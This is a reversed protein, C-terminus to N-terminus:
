QPESFDTAFAEGFISSFLFRKCNSLVNAAIDIYVPVFACVFFNSFGNCNAVSFCLFIFVVAQSFFRLCCCLAEHGRVVFARWLSGLLVVNANEGATMRARFRSM